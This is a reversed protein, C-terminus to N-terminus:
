IRPKLLKACYVYPTASETDFFIIPRGRPTCEVYQVKDKPVPWWKGKWLFEYGAATQSLQVPPADGLGCCGGGENDQQAPYWEKPKDCLEDANAIGSTFAIVACVLVAAVLKLSPIGKSRRYANVCSTSCFWKDEYPVPQRSERALGIAEKCEYCRM